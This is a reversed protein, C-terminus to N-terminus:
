TRSVFPNEVSDLISVDQSEQRHRDLSAISEVMSEPGIGRPTFREVPASNCRPGQGNWLAWCLNRDFIYPLIPLNHLSVQPLAGFEVKALTYPPLPSMNM